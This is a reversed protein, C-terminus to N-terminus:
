WLRLFTCKKKQRLKDKVNLLSYIVNHCHEPTSSVRIHHVKRDVGKLIVTSRQHTALTAKITKWERTDGNAKLTNEISTLIHYALVGIFLHAETRKENQHNIPRLGLESKLDQFAGEVRNLLMYQNWVDTASLEIQTTEIVYCGTLTSRQTREPKKNLNIATVKKNDESIQIEIDYYKGVTPYKSKIKGIREGIKIPLIISGKEFSKKLRDIDEIFRKEKLADMGQEKETKGQSVSLVHNYKEYSLKKVFVAEKNDVAEWGTPIDGDELDMYAKIASFEKEYDKETQRRNIITYPYGNDRILTLNDKTAIGRDMILVPKIDGILASGDKELKKLVDKLTEPESQNGQYIQSYVPFGMEDVVLALAVLPCDTRKEKSRGHEASKNKKASGEFYTNTLDYLYVKREATFLSKEKQYLLQEIKNKNTLLVDGIEYFSDKGVGELNENTMEILSTSNQFWRWTALESDPNIVRGLIIAKALSRYKDNIGCKVLINDMDLREWFTDAVLEPGLSRHLSTTTSNIDVLQMDSEETYEINQKQSKRIFQNHKLVDAALASLENDEELFSQQGNIRAELLAALEPWRIRPLTLKGISMIVRQRSGKETHYSEILKHTIYEVNNKKNKTKTERIYM